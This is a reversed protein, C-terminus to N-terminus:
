HERVVSGDSALSLVGEKRLRKREEEWRKMLWYSNKREMKCFVTEGLQGIWSNFRYRALYYYGRITMDMELFRPEPLKM